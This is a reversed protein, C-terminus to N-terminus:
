VRVGKVSTSLTETVTSSNNDTEYQQRMREPILAVRGFRATSYKKKIIEYNSKREEDNHISCIERVCERVERESYGSHKQLTSTWPDPRKLIKKALYISAMALLSPKWKLMKSDILTLECLYESFNKAESDM